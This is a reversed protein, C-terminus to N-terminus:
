KAVNLYKDKSIIIFDTPVCNEKRKNQVVYDEDYFVISFYVKVKEISKNVNWKDLLTDQKEQISFKFFHVLQSPCFPVFFYIQPFM